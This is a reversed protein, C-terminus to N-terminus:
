EQDEDKGPVLLLGGDEAAPAEEGPLKEAVGVAAPAEPRVEGVVQVVERPQSAKVGVSEPPLDVGLPAARKETIGGGLTIGLRGSRRRKPETTGEKTFRIHVKKKKEVGLKALILEEVEILTSVPANRLLEVIRHKMHVDPFTFLDVVDCGLVHAIGVISELNASVQGLEIRSIWGQNVTGLMNALDRQRLRQEERIQSIRKGLLLAVEESKRTARFTKAM